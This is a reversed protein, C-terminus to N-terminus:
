DISEKSIAQNELMTNHNTRLVIKKALEYVEQKILQDVTGAFPIFGYVFRM